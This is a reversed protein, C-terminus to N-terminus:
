YRKQLSKYSKVLVKGEDLIVKAREKGVFCIFRCLSKTGPKMASVSFVVDGEKLEYFDQLNM